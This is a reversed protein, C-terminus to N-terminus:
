SKVFQVLGIPNGDPDAIQATYGVGELLKKEALTKAQLEGGKKLTADLDEADFWVSPSSGVTVQDVKTLGGVHDSGAGFVVMDGFSRFHWGFLGEYFAQARELDTVDFEIHCVQNAM